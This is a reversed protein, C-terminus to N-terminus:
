CKTNENDIGIGKAKFTTNEINISNPSFANPIYFAYPNEIIVSHHISDRCGFTSQVYLWIIYEGVGNYTHAPSQLASTNNPAFSECDMELYRCQYISEFNITPNETTAKNPDLWLNLLFLM